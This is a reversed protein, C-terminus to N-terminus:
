SLGRLYTYSARVDDLPSAPRDHEVFVYRIGAQQSRALIARFDIVGSGVNVMEGAATRDKAHILHFRGAHATFYALPDKGGNVAWFIDMEMIVLAPDCRELLLDYPVIGDIPQFEFDHNHYGFQM